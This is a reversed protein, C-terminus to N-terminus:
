WITELPEIVLILYLIEWAISPHRLLLVDDPLVHCNKSMWSLLVQKSTLSPGGWLVLACKGIIHFELQLRFFEGDGDSQMCIGKLLSPVVLSRVSTQMYCVVRRVQLAKIEWLFSRLGRTVWATHVVSISASLTLLPSDPLLAYWLNGGEGMLCIEVEAM